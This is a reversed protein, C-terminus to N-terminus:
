TSYKLENRRLVSEYILTINLYQQDQGLSNVVKRKHNNTYSNLNGTFFKLRSSLHMYKRERISVRFKLNTGNEDMITMSYLVIIVAESESGSRFVVYFISLPSLMSQVTGGVVYIGNYVSVGKTFSRVSVRCVSTRLLGDGFCGKAM